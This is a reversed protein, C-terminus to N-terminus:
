VDSYPTTPSVLYAGSPRDLLHVTLPDYTFGFEQPPLPNPLFRIGGQLPASLSPPLVM